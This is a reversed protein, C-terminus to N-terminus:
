VQKETKELYRNSAKLCEYSQQFCDEKLFFNAAELFLQAILLAEEGDAMATYKIKNLAKDRLLEGIERYMKFQRYVVILREINRSNNFRTYKELAYKLGIDNSNKTSEEIFLSMLSQGSIIDFINELRQYEQTRVMLQVLIEYNKSRAYNKTREAIHKIASEIGDVNCAQVHCYHAIILLEAECNQSLINKDNSLINNGDRKKEILSQLIETGLERPAQAAEVILHELQEVNWQEVKAGTTSANDYVKVVSNVLFTAFLKATDAPHVKYYEIYDRCKTSMESVSKSDTAPDLSLLVKSIRENPTVANEVLSDAEKNIETGITEKLIPLDEFFVAILQKPYKYMKFKQMCREWFLKRESEINFLFTDRFKNLMADVEAGTVRHQADLDLDHLGSNAYERAEEFWQINILLDLVRKASTWVGFDRLSVVEGEIIVESDKLEFSLRVRQLTAFTNHLQVYTDSFKSKSLISLLQECQFTNEKEIIVDLLYKLEDEAIQKANLVNGINNMTMNTSKVHKVFVEMHSSAIEYQHLEFTEYFLLFDVLVNSPDFIRFATRLVSFEQKRCLWSTIFQLDDFTCNHRGIVTPLKIIPEPNPSATNSPLTTSWPLWDLPIDKCCTQVALWTVLCDLLPTTDHFCTALVALLPRKMRLGTDLLAFGPEDKKACEFLIDFIDEMNSQGELVADAEDILLNSRNSPHTAMNQAVIYVHDRLQLDTFNNLVIDVIENPMFRERQAEHLFTICDNRRALEQLLAISTKLGHVRCFVSVLKWALVAGSDTNTVDGVLDRTAEGLLTLAKNVALDEADKEEPFSIFLEAVNQMIDDELVDVQMERDNAGKELAIRLRFEYIRTAAEADVRLTERVNELGCLDLFCSSAALVSPKRLNYLTSQRSIKRILSIDERDLQLRLGGHKENDFKLASKLYEAPLEAVSFDQKEMKDGIKAFMHHFAQMPWGKSLYYGADRTEVYAENKFKESSFHKNKAVTNKNSDQGFMFVSGVSFSVTDSLLDFLSVDRKWSFIDGTRSDYHKAPANKNKKRQLHVHRRNGEAADGFVTKHLSPWPLLAQSIESKHVKWPKDFKELSEDDDMLAEALSTIPAYMLTGIAMLPRNSRIMAQLPTQNEAESNSQEYEHTTWGHVCYLGNYIAAEFIEGRGASGIRGTLLLRAWPRYINLNLEKLKLSTMGLNYHDLYERLLHLFGKDICFNIFFEHFPSPQGVPLLNKLSLPMKISTGQARTKGHNKQDDNNLTQAFLMGCKCLLRMLDVFDQLKNLRMNKNNPSMPQSSLQNINLLFIGRKAFETTMIDKMFRTSHVFVNKLTDYLAIFVPEAESNDKILLKGFENIYGGSLPITHIWRVVNRWDNHAVIYPLHSFQSKSPLPRGREILIRERTEQNWSHAWALTIYLYGDEEPDAGDDIWPMWLPTSEETKKGNVRKGYQERLWTVIPAAPRHMLCLQCRRDRYAKFRDNHNYKEKRMMNNRSNDNNIGHKGKRDYYGSGTHTPSTYDRAVIHQAAGPQHGLRTKQGLDDVDGCSIWKELLEAVKNKGRIPPAVKMYEEELLTEDESETDDTDYANDEVLEDMQDQSLDIKVIYGCGVGRSIERVVGSRTPEDLGDKPALPNVHIETKSFIEENINGSSSIDDLLHDATPPWRKLIDDHVIKNRKGVWNYDWLPMMGNLTNSWQRQQESTYCGNPYLSELLRVFHITKMEEEAIGCTHSLHRVLRRRLERRSTQFAVDKLFESVNEGLNRLMLTALFLESNDNVLKEYIHRGGIYRFWDFGVGYMYRTRSKKIAFPFLRRDEHVEFETHNNESAEAAGDVVHYMYESRPQSSVTNSISQAMTRRLRRAALFSLAASIEGSLLCRRVIEDDHLQNWLEDRAKISENESLLTARLNSAAPLSLPFPHITVRQRHNLYFEIERVETLNTMLQLIDVSAQTSLFNRKDEENMGYLINTSFKSSATRDAALAHTKSDILRTVFDQAVHLLRNFSNRDQFTAWNSRIYQMLMRNGQLRLDGELSELSKEVVPLEHHLLGIELANISIRKEQEKWFNIKCLHQAMLNSSFVILCDILSRQEITAELSTTLSSYSQASKNYNPLIFAYLGNKDIYFWTHYHRLISYQKSPLKMSFPKSSDTQNGNRLFRSVITERTDEDKGDTIVSEVVLMQKTISFSIIKLSNSEDGNETNTLNNVVFIESCRPKNLTAPRRKSEKALSFKTSKDVAKKKKFLKKDAYTPRKATLTFGNLSAFNPKMMGNLETVTPQRRALYASKKQWRPLIEPFAKNQNHVRVGVSSPVGYVVDMGHGGYGNGSNISQLLKDKEGLLPMSPSASISTASLPNMAVNLHTGCPKTDSKRRNYWHLSRPTVGIRNTQLFYKSYKVEDDMIVVKPPAKESSSNSNSSEDVELNNEISDESM